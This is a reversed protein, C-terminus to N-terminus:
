IWWFTVKGRLQYSARLHQRYCKAFYLYSGEEVPMAFTMKKTVIKLREELGSLSQIIM